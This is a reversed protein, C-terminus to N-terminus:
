GNFHKRLLSYMAMAHSTKLNRKLFAVKWGSNVFARIWKKPASVPCKEALYIETENMDSVCIDGFHSIVAQPPQQLVRYM